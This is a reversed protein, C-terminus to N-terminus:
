SGARAVLHAARRRLLRRLYPVLLWREALLGLVPSALTIEDTMRAGDTTEEFRHVHRFTRFPGRVQEDTFALPAELAVVRATMTWRVGLHWARWTVADGLDLTGSTRDGIARERGPGM